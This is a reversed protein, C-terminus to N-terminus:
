EAHHSIRGAASVTIGDIVTLGPSEIVTDIVLTETPCHDIVSVSLPLAPWAPRLGREGRRLTVCTRAGRRLPDQLSGRDVSALGGQGRVTRGGEIGIRHVPM